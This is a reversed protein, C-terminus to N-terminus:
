VHSYLGKDQREKSMAAIIAAGVGSGDEAHYTKITKGKDGFIDVLAEHIRDAFKPYKNYLSGDTAVGCGGEELYGCKSVIAAIGCASLRASRTGILVALKKFFQREEPTTEIGFFHSFLGIVTLQDDTFDAEILSVFATDFSFPKELKYTNQGLFLVGEEIMDMMILRFVEGLYLGAIMKEFLQQGPKNSTEDIHLDWKTRPLYEKTDSDFAGWECNIAIEADDPLNLHKIKPINKVKEVYAANCGTGFIIGMRTSPDVYHSAMLTGTTDNILATIKVPVNNKDLSKRFMAVVDEGEVGEAGFGKTWRLLTGHDIREQICPYSFTFGLAIDKDLLVSGDENEYHDKIFSALCEACFDFLAQGDGLKQEDTLRYKSQTIAFKGEGELEVECVRLNTGGLDVALYSGTEKGSPWGFVWTPIMPVMQDTKELGQELVDIFGDVIKRMRQPTVRLERECKAYWTELDKTEAGPAAAGDQTRTFSARSARRSMGPKVSAGHSERRQSASGKRYNGVPEMAVMGEDAKADDLSSMTMMQLRSGLGGSPRRNSATSARRSSSNSSM